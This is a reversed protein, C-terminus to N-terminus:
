PKATTMIWYAHLIRSVTCACYGTATELDLCSSFAAMLALLSASFAAMLALCSLSLAAIILATDWIWFLTFKKV